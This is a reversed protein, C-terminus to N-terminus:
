NCTKSSKADSHNFNEKGLLTQSENQQATTLNDTFVNNGKLGGWVLKKAYDLDIGSINYTTAYEVLSGALLDIFDVYINHMEQIYAEGFIVHTDDSYYNNLATNLSTYGPYKTLLKGEHYLNLIHAHLLEHYLTNVLGLDTAQDLYDNNFEIIVTPEGSKSTGLHPQTRAGESSTLAPEGEGVAIDIFGINPKNLALYSSKILNTFTSNVKLISKYFILAQCDKDMGNILEILAEFELTKDDMLAEIAAKTFTKAESSWKKLHLFDIIEQM